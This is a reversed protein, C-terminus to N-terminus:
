GSFARTPLGRVGPQVQFLAGALPEGPCGISASTIFLQELDDAAFALSTIKSAPLAISRDLAGDPTFRSVRSGGWHAIWLCGEADTTMGDPYGWEQPFRLFKRRHVADGHSDLDYAYVVRHLSDALWLTQGDASFAPGNPVRLGDDQLVPVFSPGLRYLAGSAQQDNDDKTGFWLRGNRDVKADNMRNQPRDPEPSQLLQLRFPDLSLSAIGSKLGVLLSGSPQREISDQSDHSEREVIWGVRQPMPWREIEGTRLSLQQVAQGDIDVWLLAQRRASWTPGEGLLDRHTGSVVQWSAPSIM